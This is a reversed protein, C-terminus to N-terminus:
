GGTDTSAIHASLVNEGPDARTAIIRASMYEAFGTSAAELEVQTDRDCRRASLAQQAAAYRTHLSAERGSSFIMRAVLPRQTLRAQEASPEPAARTPFPARLAEAKDREGM